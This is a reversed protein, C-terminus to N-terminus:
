KRARKVIELVEHIKEEREADSVCLMAEKVCIQLHRELVLEEVRVLAGRVAQIQTLIDVCYEDKEIMKQIGRVQGEIRKLASLQKEHKNM